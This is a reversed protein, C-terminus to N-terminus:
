RGSSGTKEAPRRVGDEHAYLFLYGPFATSHARQLRRITRWQLGESDIGTNEQRGSSLFIELCDFNANYSQRGYLQEAPFEGM